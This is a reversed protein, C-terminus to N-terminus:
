RSEATEGVIESAPRGSGSMGAAGRVPRSVLVKKFTLLSNMALLALRDNRTQTSATTNAIADLVANACPPMVPVLCPLPPLTTCPLAPVLLELAGSPSSRQSLGM